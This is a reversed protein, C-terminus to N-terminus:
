DLAKIGKTSALDGPHSVGPQFSPPRAEYRPSLYVVGMGGRGLEQDIRFCGIQSGPEIGLGPFSATSPLEVKGRLKESKAEAESM